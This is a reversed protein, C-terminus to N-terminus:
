YMSRLSTIGNRAAQIVKLKNLHGITNPLSVLRNYSCNLEEISHMETMIVEPIKEFDILTLKRVNHHMDIEQINGLDRLLLNDWRDIVIIKEESINNNEYKIMGYKIKNELKENLYDFPTYYAM